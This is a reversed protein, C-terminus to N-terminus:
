AGIRLQMAISTSLRRHDSAYSCLSARVATHTAAYLSARVSSCMATCCVLYLHMCGRQYRFTGLMM